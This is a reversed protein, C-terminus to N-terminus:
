GTEEHRSLTAKQVTVRLEVQDAMEVVVLHFAGLAAFLKRGGVVNSAQEVHLFAPM